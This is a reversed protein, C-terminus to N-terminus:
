FNILKENILFHIPIDPIENFNEKKIYFYYKVINTNFNKKFKYKM